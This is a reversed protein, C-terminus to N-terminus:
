LSTKLRLNKGLFAILIASFSSITGHISFSPFRSCILRFLFLNLFIIYTTLYMFYLDSKKYFWFLFSWSSITQSSQGHQRILCTTFDRYSLSHIFSCIFFFINSCFNFPQREVYYGFFGSNPHFTLIEPLGCDEHYIATWNSLMALELSTSESFGVSMGANKGLADKGPGSIKIGRLGLMDPSCRVKDNRRNWLVWGLTAGIRLQCAPQPNVLPWTKWSCPQSTVFLYFRSLCSLGQLHPPCM